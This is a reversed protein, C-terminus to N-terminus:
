FGAVLKFLGAKKAGTLKKQRQKGKGVAVVLV